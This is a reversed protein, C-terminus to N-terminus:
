RLDNEEYDDVPKSTMHLFYCATLMGNLQTRYYEATYNQGNEYCKKASEYYTNICSLLQEERQNHTKVEVGKFYKSM